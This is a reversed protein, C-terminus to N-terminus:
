ARSCRCGYLAINFPVYSHISSEYLECANPSTKGSDLTWSSFFRRLTSTSFRSFIDQPPIGDSKWNCNSSIYVCYGTFIIWQPAPLSISLLNLPVLHSKTISFISSNVPSKKRKASSTSCRYAVLLLFLYNLITYDRFGHAPIIPFAGSM